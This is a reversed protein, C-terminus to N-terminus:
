NRDNLRTIVDDKEQLSRQLEICEPCGDGEENMFLTHHLGTHVKKMRLPLFKFFHDVLPSCKKHEGAIILSQIGNLYNQCADHFLTNSHQATFLFYSMASDILGIYQQRLATEEDASYRPENSKFDGFETLLYKAAAMYLQGVDNRRSNQTKEHDADLEIAKYICANAYNIGIGKTSLDMNEPEQISDKAKKISIPRNMHLPDNENKDLRVGEATWGLDRKLKQHSPKETDLDREYVFPLGQQKIIPNTFKLISIEENFKVSKKKTKKAQTPTHRGMDMVDSALNVLEEDRHRKNTPTSPAAINEQAIEPEYPLSTMTSSAHASSLCAVATGLSFLLNIRKSM